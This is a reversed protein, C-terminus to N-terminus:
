YVSDANTEKSSSQRKLIDIAEGTKLSRLALISVLSSHFLSEVEAAPQGERFRKQFHKMEADFGKDMAGRYLNTCRGSRYLQLSKFDCLSLVAGDAFFQLTEKPFSKDGLATYTITGASGDSMTLHIVVNDDALFAGKQQTIGETRVRCVPAETIFTMLDIFHCAEGIIRGGGLIKDHLWSSSPIFQANVIYNFLLPAHRNALIEKIKQTCPAYRRNFGVMMVAQRRNYTDRLQNLEVETLCLPKEVFVAKGAQLACTVQAAHCHHPTAIFIMNSTPDLYIDRETEAITAFGFRDATFRAKHPTTSYLKQLRYGHNRKLAPLLVGTAFSGAGLLGVCAHNKTTSARSDAFPFVKTQAQERYNLLVGLVKEEEILRFAETAQAIDYTATILAKVDVKRLAVLELFAQMNRKETWRVYGLPYDNSREEYQPDYRGPGYSRAMNLSLEKEYFAKRPITLGVNGVVTVKARDRCVEAAFELPQNSSTAATIIAADTGRSDTFQRVAQAAHSDNLNILLDVAFRSAEALRQPDIDGAIVKCGCAKLIQVTLQGLLGLGIVTVCEGLAAGSQRVGWLAIAGLTVFAGEEFSISAPLPVALNSPVFIQEAHCAYGFGACAVRDGVSFDNAGSGVESVVGCSSYGLPIPTDLRARIKDLTTFIGESRFKELVQRVLDPRSRAKGIISQSAVDIIARETGSSILSCRNSVVIGQAKCGPTPCDALTLGHKHPYQLVQKV